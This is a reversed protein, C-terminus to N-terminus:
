LSNAIAALEALTEDITAEDAGYVKYWDGNINIRASYEAMFFVKQVEVGDIEYDDRIGLEGAEEFEAWDDESYVDNHQLYVHPGSGLSTLGDIYVTAYQTQEFTSVSSAFFRETGDGNLLADFVPDATVSAYDDLYEAYTYRTDNMGSYSALDYEEFEAETLEGAGLESETASSYANPAASGAAETGKGEEPAAEAEMAGEAIVSEPAEVIGNNIAMDRVADASNTENGNLLPAAILVAAVLCAAAAAWVGWPVKRKVVTAPRADQVYEDPLEGIADFLIDSKM